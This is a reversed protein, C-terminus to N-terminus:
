EIEEELSDVLGRYAGIRETADLALVAELQREFARNQERETSTFEPETDRDNPSPENEYGM